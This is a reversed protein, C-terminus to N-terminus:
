SGNRSSRTRGALWDPLSVGGGVLNWDRQAGHPTTVLGWIDQKGGTEKGGLRVEKRGVGVRREHDPRRHGSGIVVFRHEVAM